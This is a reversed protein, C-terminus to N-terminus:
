TYAPILMSALHVQGFVEVKVPFTLGPVDLGERSMPNFDCEIVKEFYKRQATPSLEAPILMSCFMNNVKYRLWPALSPLMLQLPMLTIGNCTFAPIGDLCALLRLLLTDPTYKEAMEQWRPSDFVDAIVDKYKERPYLRHNEFEAAEQFAISDRMLAELRPKIPFHIVQEHPNHAHTPSLHTIHSHTHQSQTLIVQEHPRGKSDYRDGGCIPCTNDKDTETWIHQHCIVCGDYKHVKVGANKALEADYSKISAPLKIGSRILEGLNGKLQELLAGLQNDSLGHNYQLCFQYNRFYM